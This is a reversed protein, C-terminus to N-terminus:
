VSKKMKRISDKLEINVGMISDNKLILEKHENKYVTNRFYLFGTVLLLVVICIILVVNLGYGTKM